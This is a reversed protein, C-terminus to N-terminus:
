ATLRSPQGPVALSLEASTPWPVIGTPATLSGHYGEIETKYHESLKSHSHREVLGIIEAASRARGIMPTQRFAEDSIYVDVNAGGSSAVLHLHYPIGCVEIIM